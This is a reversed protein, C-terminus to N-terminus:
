KHCRKDGSKTSAQYKGWRLTMVGNKDTLKIQKVEGTDIM